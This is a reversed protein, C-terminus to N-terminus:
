LQKLFCVIREVEDFGLAKHVAISGSNDIEADSALESYGLERAWTEASQLLLKGVGQGRYAEAVFWGEVYPVRHNDSGEAYNRVSLEIFGAIEGAGAEAVYVQDCALANGVFYAEIERENDEPDDPWLENRLQLWASSDDPLCPRIKM